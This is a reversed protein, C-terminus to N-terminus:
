GQKKMGSFKDHMKGRLHILNVIWHEKWNPGRKNGEEEDSSQALDTSNTKMKAGGKKKSKSKDKSARLCKKTPPQEKEECTDDLVIETKATTCNGFSAEGQFEEYLLIDSFKESLQPEQLDEEKTKFDFSLMYETTSMQNLVVVM